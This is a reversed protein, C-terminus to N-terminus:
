ETVPEAPDASAVKGGHTLARAEEQTFDTPIKDCRVLRYKVGGAVIYCLDLNIVTPRVYVPPREAHNEQVNKDESTMRAATSMKTSASPALRSFDFTEAGGAHVPIMYTYANGGIDNPEARLLCAMKLTAIHIGGCSPCKAAGLEELKEIVVRDYKPVDFDERM